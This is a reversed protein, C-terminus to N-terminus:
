GFSVNELGKIFDQDNMPLRLSVSKTYRFKYEMAKVLKAVSNQNNNATSTDDTAASDGVSAITSPIM